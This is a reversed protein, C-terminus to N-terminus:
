NKKKGYSINKITKILNNNGWQKEYFIPSIIIASLLGILAGALVDTIFHQSLYIRSYGGLIAIILCLLKIYKNKIIVALVFFTAFATTTHGSPFSLSHHLDVGNVVPLEIGLENFIVSPRPIQMVRKIVFTILSSLGQSLGLFIFNRYNYFLLLGLIIFPISGGVETIYKFFYDGITTHFSNLLLHCNIKGYYMLLVFMIIWIITFPLIFIYNDKIVRKIM